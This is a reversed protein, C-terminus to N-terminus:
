STNRVRELNNQIQLYKQDQFYDIKNLFICRHRVQLDIYHIKLHQLKYLVILLKM